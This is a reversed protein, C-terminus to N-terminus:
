HHVPDLEFESVVDKLSLGPLDQMYQVAAVFDDEVLDLLIKDDASYPIRMALMVALNRIRNSYSCVYQADELSFSELTRLWADGTKEVLKERNVFECESHKGEAHLVCQNGKCIIYDVCFAGVFLPAIEAELGEREAAWRNVRRNEAGAFKTFPVCGSRDPYNGVECNNVVSSVAQLLTEQNMSRPLVVVGDAHRTTWFSSTIM